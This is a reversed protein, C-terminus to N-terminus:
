RQTLMRRMTAVPAPIDLATAVAMLAAGFGARYAVARPDNPASMVAAATENTMLLATIISEIDEKLFVDSGRNAM